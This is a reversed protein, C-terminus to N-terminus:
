AIVKKRTKQKKIPVITIIPRKWANELRNPVLWDYFKRCTADFSSQASDSLDHITPGDYGDVYRPILFLPEIKRDEPHYNIHKILWGGLLWLNDIHRNITVPSLSKKKLSAIYPKFLKLIDKGYSVDENTGKWSDPWDNIDKDKFNM